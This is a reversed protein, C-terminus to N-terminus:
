HYLTQGYYGEIHTYDMDMMMVFQLTFPRNKSNLCDYYDLLFKEDAHKEFFNDLDKVAKKAISYTDKVQLRAGSGLAVKSLFNIDERNPKVVSKFKEWVVPLPACNGSMIHMHNDFFYGLPIHIKIALADGAM